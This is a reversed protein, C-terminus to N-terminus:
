RESEDVTGSADECVLWSRCDEEIRDSYEAVFTTDLSLNRPFTRACVKSSSDPRINDVEHYEANSIRRDTASEECCM